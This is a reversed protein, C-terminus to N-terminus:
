AAKRRRHGNRGGYTNTLSHCNACLLELNELRNDLGDGNVHHLQMSLRRGRWHTLGCGECRDDKLGAAILRLKLHHRGTAARGVILLDELPMRWDRPRVDGRQVAQTWTAKSFGFHRCCEMARMGADHARQVAKWDYRRRFKANPPVGLKRVHFAVTSKSIGLERAIEAQTVGSELLGEVAARTTHSHKIPDREPRPVIAGRAIAQDFAGASVGFRERCESRTHGAEYFDRIADWDYRTRPRHRPPVGMKGLDYSVVSESVGLRHAIERQKLGDRFLAVVLKRRQEIEGSVFV